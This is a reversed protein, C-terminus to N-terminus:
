AQCTWTEGPSRQSPDRETQAALPVTTLTCYFDPKVTQKDSPLSDAHGGGARRVRGADRLGVPGARHPSPQQVGRDLQQDLAPEGAGRGGEDGLPGAHTAARLQVVERGLVVEDHGGDLVEGLAAARLERARHGVQRAAAPAGARDDLHEAVVEGRGDEGGGELQPDRGARVGRQEGGHARELLPDTALRV